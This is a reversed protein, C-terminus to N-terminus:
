AVATPTSARTATAAVPAYFSSEGAGRLCDRTFEILHHSVVAVNIVEEVRGARLAPGALRWFTRRYDARVGIRWMIRGLIGIGMLTNRWSARHPSLPFKGRNPFTHQLQHAFRRYIAEPTYTAAICRRWAAVVSEYPVRFVVNSERGGEHSLRGEGELRRWLPTKPLAYLINITLM